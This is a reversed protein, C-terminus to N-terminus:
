HLFSSGVGGTGAVNRRNAPIVNPIVEIQFGFTNVLTSYNLGVNLQLDTGIRSVTASFITNNNGFDYLVTTTAAYKASFAYTAAAIIAKSNVPDIQRYSFTFNTRDPRNFSVGFNFARAGNDYPEFLGSSFFATRDGINWSYDYTLFGLPHGFDDRDSQPYIWAGMDLTMWDIIHESGPYGRKTQFRQRIDFNLVEISDLTDIRSDLLMRIAYRQPDYIPSTALFAGNPYLYVDWPHIDRLARDSVPDNLMDLQPLHTFSTDSHATYFNGSVVIKHFIGDLNFLESQAEPYLRSFPISGRLGVGGYVRGREQDDLDRTYEALDLTAYPVLKFPGLTFPLSIEQQIDLRATQDYRLTSSAPPPIDAPQLQAYTADARVNYTFLGFFKEGILYGDFKPWYDTETMWYQLREQVLGTWAWNGQQQKVYLSTYEEPGNFYENPFYQEMFNRDSVAYIRVQAMFGNPMDQANSMLSLRGRWDTHNIIRDDTPTVLLMQGRNFGLIDSGTDFIGYANIATTYVGPIGLFERSTADYQTGLAPGRESLYDINLKWRTGAPRDVGLLQFVDWTSLFEFGFIRNYNFGVSQLPGLPDRVDARFWPWYFIPVYWGEAVELELFLNRGTFIDQTVTEPQGTARDIVQRGFISKKLVEKQELDGDAVVIKLGPDSPLKSAFVEPRIVYSQKANLQDLEEARVHVPDVMLPQKMELDAQIAVAVSRSVDYYLESARLTREEKGDKTRMEVNGALYFQVDRLQQGQPSRLNNLVAQSNNGKTWLVLRDAEVDLIGGKDDINTVILIIGTNIIIVGEEATGGSIQIERSYRPRLMFQRPPASGPPPVPPKPPPPPVAPPPPPPPPNPLTPPVLPAGPGPYTDPNTPPVAGPPTMPAPGQQMPTAQGGPAWQQMPVAPVPAPQPATGMPPDVAATQQIGSAQQAAPTSALSPNDKAASAQAYLAEGSAPTQSIKGQYSQLNIAGRTNLEILARAATQEQSGDELTVNGEGYVDLHYVGTRKHEEEDVWVVAQTQRIHVVGQEIWVRGQLLIARRGHDVWTTISDAYLTVPRSEGPENRSWRLLDPPAATACYVVVAALALAGLV